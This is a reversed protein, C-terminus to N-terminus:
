DHGHDLDAHHQKCQGPELGISQFDLVSGNEHKYLTRADDCVVRRTELNGGCHFSSAVLMSGSGDYIATQPYPCLPRTRGPKLAPPSALATISAPAEGKETWKV